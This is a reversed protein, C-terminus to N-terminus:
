KKPPAEYDNSERTIKSRLDRLNPQEDDVCVVRFGVFDADTMWWISQPAQPDRKLWPQESFQRSASRCKSPGQSWSGGRVVYPYRVNRPLNVPQLTAKDTPFTKYYDPQYYDICWEAVNGYIDYLGWPNAKKKAVVHTTDNGNDAHWAYDDVMAENSGFFYPTSSGARAAWEWEAETPLRYRKGTKASLWECYMMAAHITMCLAPQNDRGYGFTEDAFAPTPKTVADAAIDMPLVPKKAGPIKQWYLDYENWTVECKGMWFPKITVPHQPGENPEREKESEPSGMLFTGGPIPVMDFSVRDTLKQTFPKLKNEEVIPLKPAAQGSSIRPLVVSFVVALATALWALPHKCVAFM